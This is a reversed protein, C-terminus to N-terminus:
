KELKISHKDLSHGLSHLTRLTYRVDASPRCEEGSGLSLSVCGKKQGLVKLTWM